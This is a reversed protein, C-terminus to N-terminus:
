FLSTFLFKFNTLGSTWNRYVRIFLNLESQCHEFFNFNYYVPM